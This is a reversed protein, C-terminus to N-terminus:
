SLLFGTRRGPLVHDGTPVQKILAQEQMDQEQLLPLVGEANSVLAYVMIAVGALTRAALLENKWAERHEPDVSLAGQAACPRAISVRRSSVCGHDFRSDCLCGGDSRLACLELCSASLHLEGGFEARSSLGAHFHCPLCNRLFRFAWRSPLFGEFPCFEAAAVGSVPWPVVALLLILCFAMCVERALLSLHSYFRFGAWGARACVCSGKGQGAHLDSVANM